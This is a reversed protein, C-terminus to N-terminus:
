DIYLSFCLRFFDTSKKLILAIFWVFACVLVSVCMHVVFHTERVIDKHRLATVMVILRVNQEWVMRWFDAVTNQLPGQTCIFDRETGGGQFCMYANVAGRM